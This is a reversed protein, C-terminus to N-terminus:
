RDKLSPVKEWVPARKEAGIPKGMLLPGTHTMQNKAETGKGEDMPLYVRLNKTRPSLERRMDRNIQRQSRPVSWVRVEDILGAFGTVQNGPQGSFPSCGVWFFEQNPLLKEVGTQTHVLKGNLYLKGIKNNHAYAIHTWREPPPITWGVEIGNAEVNFSKKLLLAYGSGQMNHSILYRYFQNLDGGQPKIWAEMTVGKTITLGPSPDMRALSRGDFRLAYNDAFSAAPIALCLFAFGRM